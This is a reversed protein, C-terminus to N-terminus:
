HCSPLATTKLQYNSSYILLWHSNCNVVEEWLTAPVLVQMASFRRLSKHLIKSDLVICLISTWSKFTESVLDVAYRLGNCSVQCSFSEWIYALENTWQKITAYKINYEWSATNCQARRSYTYLQHVHHIKKPLHIDGPNSFSWKFTGMSSKLHIHKVCSVVVHFQHPLNKDNKRSERRSCSNKKLDDLVQIDHSM